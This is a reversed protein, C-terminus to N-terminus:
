GKVLKRPKKDSRPRNVSRGVVPCFADCYNQGGVNNCADYCQKFDVPQTHVPTIAPKKQLTSSVRTVNRTQAGKTGPGFKSM